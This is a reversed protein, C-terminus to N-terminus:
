PFLFSFFSVLFLFWPFVVTSGDVQVVGIWDVVVNDGLMDYESLRRVREARVGYVM